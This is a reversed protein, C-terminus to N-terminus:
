ILHPIMQWAEKRNSRFDKQQCKEAFEFQWKHKDKRKERLLNRRTIKLLEQTEPSGQEM